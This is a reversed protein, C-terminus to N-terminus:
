EVLRVIQGGGGSLEPALDLDCDYSFRTNGRFYLRRAVVPSCDGGVTGNGQFQMEQNPLYFAGTVQSSANGNIVSTRLPGARESFVLIGDYPGSDKASLNITTNGNFELKAGNYLYFLVGSGSITSNANIRFTGGDIAYIGPTLTVNARLHLGNCYRGPDVTHQKSPPGGLDPHPTCGGPVAPEPVNAFPDAVPPQYQRPAECDTLTMSSNGHQAFGGATGVCQTTLRANGGTRVAFTHTSNAFVDCGNLSIEANGTFQVADSASNELSVICGRAGETRVRAVARARFGREINIFLRSLYLPASQTLIVEVATDGTFAGTLPPQNVTITGTQEDFGNRTAEQRARERVQTQSAGAALDFAAAYAALDARDQLTRHTVQWYAVEVGLAIFGAIVPLAIALIIATSGREDRSAALIAGRLNKRFRRM